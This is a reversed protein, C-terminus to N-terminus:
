VLLTAHTRYEEFEMMHMALKGMHREDAMDLGKRLENVQSRYQGEIQENLKKQTHLERNMRENSSMLETQKKLFNEIQTQLDVRNKELNDVITNQNKFKMQLEQFVAERNMLDTHTAV